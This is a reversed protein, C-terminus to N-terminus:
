HGPWVRQRASAFASACRELSDATRWHGLRVFEGAGREDLKLVAAGDWGRPSVASIERVLQFNLAMYDGQMLSRPDVPALELYVPQGSARLREKAAVQWNVAGFVLVAGVGLLIRSNMGAGKALWRASAILGAGLLVMIISKVLLTTGLVYYFSSVELLGFLIALGMLARARIAFALALALMALFVALLPWLATVGHSGDTFDRTAGLGLSMWFTAPHTALPAISLAAIVGHTVPRMVNERGAAMWQARTGEGAVLRCVGRSGLGRALAIGFRGINQYRETALCQGLDRDRSTRRLPDSANGPGM